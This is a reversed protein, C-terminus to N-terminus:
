QGAQRSETLGGLSFLGLVAAGQADAVHVVGDRRQGEVHGVPGPFVVLVGAQDVFLQERGVQALGLAVAPRERKLAISEQRRLADAALQGLFPLELLVGPPQLHLQALAHHKRGLGAHHGGAFQDGLVHDVAEVPQDLARLLDGAVEIVNVFDLGGALVGDDEGVLAVVGLVVVPEAPAVVRGDHGLLHHGGARLVPFVGVAGAGEQHVVVDLAVREDELLVGAVPIGLGDGALLVLQREGVADGVAVDLVLGGHGGGQAGALDIHEFGDAPAVGLRELLLHGFQLPALVQRHAAHEHGHARVGLREVVDAHPPRQVHCDVLGLDDLSIPAAIGLQQAERHVGGPNAVVLRQLHHGVRHLLQEDVVRGLGFGQQRLGTVGVPEGELGLGGRRRGVVVQQGHHRGVQGLHAHLHLDLHQLVRGEHRRHAGLGVRRAVEHEGARGVRRSRQALVEQLALVPVRRLVAVGLEVLLHGLDIGLRILPHALDLGLQHGALDELLCRVDPQGGLVAVGGPPWPDLVVTALQAGARLPGVRDM